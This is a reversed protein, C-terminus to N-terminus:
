LIFELCLIIKLCGVGISMNQSHNVATSRHISYNLDDGASRLFDIMGM